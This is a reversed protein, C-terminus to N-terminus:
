TRIQQGRKKVLYYNRFHFNTVWVECYNYTKKTMKTMIMMMLIVMIIMMIIIAVMMTMMLKKRDHATKWLKKWSIDEKFLSRVKEVENSNLTSFSSKTRELQKITSGRVFFSLLVQEIRLHTYNSRGWDEQLVFDLLIKSHLVNTGRLLKILPKTSQHPWIGIQFM